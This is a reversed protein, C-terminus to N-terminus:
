EGKIHKSVATAIERKTSIVPIIKEIEEVSARQKFKLIENMQVVTIEFLLKNEKKLADIDGQMDVNIAGRCEERIADECDLIAKKLEKNEAELKNYAENINM